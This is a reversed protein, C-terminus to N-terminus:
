MTGIGLKRESVPWETVHRDAIALYKGCGTVKRRSVYKRLKGRDGSMYEKSYALAYFTPM